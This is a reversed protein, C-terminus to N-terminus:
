KAEKVTQAVLREADGLFYKLDDLLFPLPEANRIIYGSPSTLVTPIPLGEVKGYNGRIAKVMINLPNYNYATLIFKLDKMDLYRLGREFLAENFATPNVRRRFAKYGNLDNNNLYMAFTAGLSVDKLEDLLGYVMERNGSNAMSAMVEFAMIQASTEVDERNNRCMDGQVIHALEHVLVPLFMAKNGWPSHENGMRANLRVMDRCDSQGAIHNHSRGDGYEMFTLKNPIAAQRLGNYSFHPMIEKAWELAEESNVAPRYETKDLADNLRDFRLALAKCEELSLDPVRDFEVKLFPDYSGRNREPAVLGLAFAAAGAGALKFFARRDLEKM